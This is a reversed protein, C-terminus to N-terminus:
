EKLVYYFFSGPLVTVILPCVISGVVGWLGVLLSGGDSTNIMALLVVFIFVLNVIPQSKEKDLKMYAMRFIQTEILAGDRVDLEGSRAGVTEKLYSTGDGGQRKLDLM